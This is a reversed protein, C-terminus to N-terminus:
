IAIFYFPLRVSIPSYQEESPYIRVSPLERGEIDLSSVINVLILAIVRICTYHISDEPKFYQIIFRPLKSIVSPLKYM